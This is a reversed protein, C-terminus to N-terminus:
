RVNLQLIEVSSTKPYIKLRTDQTYHMKCLLTIKCPKIHKIEKFQELARYHCLIYTCRCKFIPSFKWNECIYNISHM